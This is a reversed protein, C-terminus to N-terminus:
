STPPGPAWTDTYLLSLSYFYTYEYKM